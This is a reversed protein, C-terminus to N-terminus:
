HTYTLHLIPLKVKFTSQRLEGSQRDIYDDLEEVLTVMGILTYSATPFIDFEKIGLLPM